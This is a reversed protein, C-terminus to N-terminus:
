GRCFQLTLATIQTVSQGIPVNHSAQVERWVVLIKEMRLLLTTKM